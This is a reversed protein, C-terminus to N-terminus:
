RNQIPTYVGLQDAIRADGLWFATLEEVQLAVSLDAGADVLFADVFVTGGSAM